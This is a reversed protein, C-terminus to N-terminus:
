SSRMKMIIFSEIKKYFFRRVYDVVICVAMLFAIYLALCLLVIYWQWGMEVPIQIPYWIFDHIDNGDTLMYVAVIHMAIQSVVPVSLQIDRLFYMFLGSASVILIPSRYDTIVKYSLEQQGLFLLGAGLVILVISSLIYVLLNVSKKRFTFSLNWRRIAYGIIYVFLMPLVSFPSGYTSLDCVFGLITNLLGYTILLAKLEKDALSDLLKIIYDSLCYITIYAVLFWLQWGFVVRRGFALISFNKYELICSLIYGMCAYLSGEIIMEVLKEKRFHSHFYGSMLFYVNVSVTTMALLCIHISTYRSIVYTGSSLAHGGWGYGIAHIISVGVM